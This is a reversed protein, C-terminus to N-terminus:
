AEGLEYRIFRKIQINEGIKLTVQEILKQMTLSEDRIYTGELLEATDKPNMSAIQMAIEHALEKFQDNKAVFDSECALELMVGIKGQHAYTEIIGQNAAREAKQKAIAEASKSLIAKAKTFDGNAEELAQKCAMVGVGTEERLKGVLEASIM